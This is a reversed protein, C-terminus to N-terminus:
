PTQELALLVEPAGPFHSLRSQEEINIDGFMEKLLKKYKRKVVKKGEVSENDELFHDFFKVGDYLKYSDKADGGRSESETMIKELLEKVRGINKEDKSRASSIMLQLLLDPSPSYLTTKDKDIGMSDGTGAPAGLVHDEFSELFQDTLTDNELSNIMLRSLRMHNHCYEKANEFKREMEESRNGIVSGIGFNIGVPMSLGAAELIDRTYGGCNYGFLSYDKYGMAGGFTENLCRLRELVVSEPENSRISLKVCDLDAEVEANRLTGDSNDMLADRTEYQDDIVVGVHLTPNLSAIARDTGSLKGNRSMFNYILNSTCLEIRKTSPFAADIPATALHGVDMAINHVTMPINVISDQYQGRALDGVSGVTRGGVTRDVTHYVLRFPYKFLRTWFGENQNGWIDKLRRANGKTFALLPECFENREKSFSTDKLYRGFMRKAMNKTPLPNAVMVEEGNYLYKEKERDFPILTREGSSLEIELSMDDHVQHVKVPHSKDKTRFSTLLQQTVPGTTEIQLKLSNLHTLVEERDRGWEKRRSRLTIRGRGIARRFTRYSRARRNLYKNIGDRNDQYFEEISQYGPIEVPEKNLLKKYIKHKSSDSLKRECQTCKNRDECAACPLIASNILSEELRMAFLDFNENKEFDSPLDRMNFDKKLCSMAKLQRNSRSCLDVDSTIPPVSECPITSLTEALNTTAQTTEGCSSASNGINLGLGQTALNVSSINIIGKQIKLAEGTVGESPFDNEGTASFEGQSLLTTLDETSGLEISVPYQQVYIKKNQSNYLISSSAKETKSLGEPSFKNMWGNGLLVM